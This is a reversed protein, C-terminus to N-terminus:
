IACVTEFSRAMNSMKVIEVENGPDERKARLAQSYSVFGRFHNCQFNLGPNLWIEPLTKKGLFM